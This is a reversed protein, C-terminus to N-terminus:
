IEDYGYVPYDPDYSPLHFTLGDPRALAEAVTPRLPQLDTAHHRRHRFVDFLVRFIDDEADADWAPQLTPYLAEIAAVKQESDEWPRVIPLFVDDRTRPVDAWRTPRKEYMTMAFRNVWFLNLAMDRLLEYRTQYRGAQVRKLIETGTPAKQDFERPTAAALQERTEFVSFDLEPFFNSPLFIRGARNVVFPKM